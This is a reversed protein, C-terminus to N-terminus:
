NNLLFETALTLGGTKTPVLLQYLIGVLCSAIQQSVAASNEPPFFNIVREIAQTTDPAHITSIVLHGTEAAKLATSISESDTLEGVVIIDPDQRLANKLAEAYSITDSGLERQKVISKRGAHIFEIPDEIAIVVKEMTQNIYDIMATLT